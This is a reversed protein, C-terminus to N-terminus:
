GPSPPQEVERQEVEATSGSVNERSSEALPRVEIASSTAVLRFVRRYFGSSQGTKELGSEAPHVPSPPSGSELPNPRRTDARDGGRSFAAGVGPLAVEVSQPPERIPRTLLSLRSGVDVVDGRWEGPIVQIVTREPGSRLRSLRRRGRFRWGAAESSSQSLTWSIRRAARSSRWGRTVSLTPRRVTEPARGFFAALHWCVLWLRRSRDPRLRRHNANRSRTQPM